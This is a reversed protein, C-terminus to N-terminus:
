AYRARLYRLYADATTHYQDQAGHRHLELRGAPHLRVTTTAQRPAPGRRPPGTRGAVASAAAASEALVPVTAPFMALAERSTSAPPHGTRNASSVYLVPHDHLLPRLPQWRAGFLLVWGDKHAPKLWAPRAADARVPVLVTLHEEALLREALLIHAAPLDWLGRLRQLTRPHHAWLAVPQGGPRGKAENVTRARTATVVHTLPEPNPLVVAAGERLARRAQALSAPARTPPDTSPNM